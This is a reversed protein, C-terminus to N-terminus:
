VDLMNQVYLTGIDVDNELLKRVAGLNDPKIIESNGTKDRRILLIDEIKIHRILEPSHTTVIIQKNSSADELMHAVKAILSPHINREPEEIISLPKDQFYLACILATVNITGDSVLTAPISQDKFYNEKQVLIVSKDLLKETDVSNIFPLVDSIINSFMKRNEENKMISKMAIALNEGNPELENTGMIPVAVKAFKPNFDYVEIESCFDNLEYLILNTIFSYEISLMGPRLGDIFFEKIYKKIKSIEDQLQKHNFDTNIKIKGDEVSITITFDLTKKGDLMGISFRWEDRIIKFESNPEPKIEFLYIIKTIVTKHKMLRRILFGAKTESINFTVEYSLNSVPNSFNLLYEMGGQQSIASDLGDVTIDNLFKFVQTLNSKGSANAGIIVNFRSLSM